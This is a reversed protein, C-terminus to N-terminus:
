ENTREGDKAFEKDHQTMEEEPISDSADKITKNLKKKLFDFM